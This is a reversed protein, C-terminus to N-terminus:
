ILDFFTIAAQLEQDKLKLTMLIKFYNLLILTYYKYM